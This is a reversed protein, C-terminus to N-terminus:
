IVLRVKPPDESEHDDHMLQTGFERLLFDPAVRKTFSEIVLRVKSPDESEHGHCPVCSDPAECTVEGSTSTPYHFFSQHEECVERM